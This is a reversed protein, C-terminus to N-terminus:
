DGRRGATRGSRMATFRRAYNLAIDIEDRTFGKLALLVVFYIVAGAAIVLFIGLMSGTTGILLISAAMALSAAVSKAIAAWDVSFTLFRRSISLGILLMVVHSATAAIGAGVIGFLPTLVFVLAVNLVAPISFTIFNLHTKKVLHPVNDVFRSMGSLLGALAIFPIVAAGPAFAPTTLAMIIPGALVSIGVVAPLVLIMYYRFSRRLYEKVQDIRGDDYLRALTPYLVLQIPAVLLYIVAGINFAASYIGALSLGVLIALLYRDSSSLVWHILTNPTLPLGFKFNRKFIERDPRSYGVQRLVLSLGMIFAVVAIIFSGLVAGLVGMGGVVFLLILGVEGFANFINVLAYTRIQGMARFYSSNIGTFAAFPVTLAGLVLVAALTGDQFIFEALPVCLAIMAATLVAGFAAVIAFAGFYERSIRKRDEGSRLFRLLTVSQGLIAVSSLLSITVLVQVWLGYDNTGLTKTIVPLLLFNGVNVLVQTLGIIVADKALDKFAM